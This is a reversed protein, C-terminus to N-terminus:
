RTPGDRMVLAGILDSAWQRSQVMKGNSNRLWYLNEFNQITSTCTEAILTTKVLQGNVTLDRPGRVDIDCVYSRTATQMDSGLFSMFRTTTANRRALVARKTQAIQSSMLDDSLGRTNRLFGDELAVSKGTDTLWTQVGDRQTDLVALSVLNLDEIGLKILPAGATTLAAFRASQRNTASNPQVVSLLRETTSTANDAGTSCAALLIAIFLLPMKRM